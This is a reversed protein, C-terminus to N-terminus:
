ATSQKGRRKAHRVIRGPYDHVAQDSLISRHSTDRPHAQRRVVSPQARLRQDGLSWQNQRM